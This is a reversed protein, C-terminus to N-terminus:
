SVRVPVDSPGSRLGSHFAHRRHNADHSQFLCKPTTLQEREFRSKQTHIHTHTHTHIHIHIHIHIHTYTHAYTHLTKRYVHFIAKSLGMTERERIDMWLTTDPGQQKPPVFNLHQCYLLPFFCYRQSACCPRAEGNETADM